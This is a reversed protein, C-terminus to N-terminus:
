HHSQENLQQYTHHHDSYKIFGNQVAIVEGDQLPTWQYFINLPVSTFLTIVDEDGRLAIGSESSSRFGDDNSGSVLQLYQLGPWEVVDKIPDHRQNGHAFLANGDSYLFNATGLKRIDEAFQCVLNYRLDLTPIRDNEEWLQAMREMLACFAFESDTTGVPRFRRTKFEPHHHIEKLTGNHAFTHMSGHLERTFPHTNRYSVEGMTSKRIHAIVMNSHIEQQKIFKVWPSGKAEGADKILRVDKGEYFAVGWGDGHMKPNEGRESLVTLSLNISTHHNSSMGLLECM